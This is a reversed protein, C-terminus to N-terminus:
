PGPAPTLAGACTRVSATGSPRREPSTSTSAETAPRIISTQGSSSRTGSPVRTSGGNRNRASSGITTATTSASTLSPPRSARTSATRPTSLATLANARAMEGPMAPTSSTKKRSTSPPRTKPGPKPNTSPQVLRNAEASTVAPTPGHSGYWISTAAHTPM